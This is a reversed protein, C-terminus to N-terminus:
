VTVLKLHVPQGPLHSAATTCAWVVQGAVEVELLYTSGMFQRTKIIGKVGKSALQINEPRVFAPSTAKVGLARLLDPSLLNYKGFIGAVYANVPARYITIPPGQQMVEGGKMVIVQDAWPLIDLPDHSVLMCTTQLQETVDRVVEKLIGKHILDLNSYPEDLILLRPTNVLLRALAIRQKEGGSVQHTKRRLLHSIRCIDFLERTSAETLQNDYNLVDEVWYNEKLEFHQSLYAIGPTVMMLKEEPGKVRVGELLVEGGDPQALGAIIKVLTSKGSGSEGAIALKQLKELSFSVPLLTFDSGTRKYVGKVEIFSM